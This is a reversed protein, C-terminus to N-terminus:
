QSVKTSLSRAPMDRRLRDFGKSRWLPPSFGPETRQLAEERTQEATEVDGCRELRSLEGAVHLVRDVKRVSPFLRLPLVLTRGIPKPIAVVLRSIVDIWDM